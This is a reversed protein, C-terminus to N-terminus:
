VTALLVDINGIEVQVANATIPRYDGLAPADAVDVSVTNTQEDYILGDGYNAGGGPGPPGPPGQAKNGTNVYRGSAEDWQYWYGDIITPYKEVAAEAQAASRTAERASEVATGISQEIVEGYGIVKDAWGKAADPPDAEEGLSEGTETSFIASKAIQEDVYATLQAVGNGPRGVDAATILWELYGENIEFPCIYPAEDAHRQHTLGYTARGISPFIALLPFRVTTVGNEGRRGLPIPRNPAAISFRM